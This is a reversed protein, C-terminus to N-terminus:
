RERSQREARHQLAREVMGDVRWVEDGNRTVVYGSVWGDEFFVVEQSATEVVARACVEDLCIPRREYGDTLVGAEDVVVSIHDPLRGVRREHVSRPSREVEAVADALLDPDSEAIPLDQALAPAVAMLTLTCGMAFLSLRFESWKNLESLGSRM